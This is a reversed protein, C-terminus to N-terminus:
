VEPEYSEEEIDVDTMMAIYDMDARLRDREARLLANEAELANLRLNTNIRKM